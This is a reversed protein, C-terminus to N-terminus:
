LLLEVVRVSTRVKLWSGHITSEVRAMDVGNEQLWARVLALSSADPATLDGVQAHTLHRGYQANKPDSVAWFTAELQDINRQKIAFTLVHEQAESPLDVLQWTSPRIYSELSVRDAC